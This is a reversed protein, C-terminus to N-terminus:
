EVGDRGGDGANEAPGGVSVLRLATDAVGCGKIALKLRELQEHTCSVTMTSRTRPGPYECTEVSIALSKACSVTDLFADFGGQFFVMFTDKRESDREWSAELRARFGDLMAEDIPAYCPKPAHRYGPLERM